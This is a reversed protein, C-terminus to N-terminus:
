KVELGCEKLVQLPSGQSHSVPSDITSALASLNRAKTRLALITESEVYPIGLTEAEAADRKAKDNAEAEVAEACRQVIPALFPRVNEFCFKKMAEHALDNLRQFRRHLEKKSKHSDCLDKFAQDTPTNIYELEREQWAREFETMNTSEMHAMLRKYEADLQKATEIEAASMIPPDRRLLHVVKAVHQATKSFINAM